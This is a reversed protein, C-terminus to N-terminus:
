GKRFLHLKPGSFPNGEDGSLASNINSQHPASGDRKSLNMQHQNQTTRIGNNIINEAYFKGNESDNSLQSVNLKTENNFFASMDQQIQSPDM